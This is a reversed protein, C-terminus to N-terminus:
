DEDNITHNRMLLLAAFISFIYCGTQRHLVNEVLLFLVISLLTAVDFFNDKVAYFLTIFFSVFLLLGILGNNLYMDIFQNHSNFKTETFYAKKSENKITKAYCNVYNNEVITNSSYGFVVNFDDRLAM